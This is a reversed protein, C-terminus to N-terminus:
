TGMKEIYKKWSENLKEDMVEDRFSGGSEAVIEEDTRIDGSYLGNGDTTVTILYGRIGYLFIGKYERKWNEGYIWVYLTLDDRVGTLNLGYTQPM